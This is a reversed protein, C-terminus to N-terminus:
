FVLHFIDLQLEPFIVGVVVGKATVAELAPDAAKVREIWVLTIICDIRAFGAHIVNQHEIKFRGEVLLVEAIDLETVLPRLKKRFIERAASALPLNPHAYVGFASVGPTAYAAELMGAADARSRPEEGCRHAM